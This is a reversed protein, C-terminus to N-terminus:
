RTRNSLLQAATHKNTEALSHAAMQWRLMKFSFVSCQQSDQQSDSLWATKRCINM